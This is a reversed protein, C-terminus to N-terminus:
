LAVYTVYLWEHSFVTINILWNLILQACARSKPLLSKTTGYFGKAVYVVLPLYTYM